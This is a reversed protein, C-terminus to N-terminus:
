AKFTSFSETKVQLINLMADYLLHDYNQRNNTSSHQYISLTSPSFIANKYQFIVWCHTMM